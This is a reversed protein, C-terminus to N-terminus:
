VSRAVVKFMADPEIGIADAIINAYHHRLDVRV